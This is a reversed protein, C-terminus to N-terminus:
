PNELKDTYKAYFTDITGIVHNIRQFYLSSDTLEQTLFEVDEALSFKQEKVSEQSKCKKEKKKSESRARGEKKNKTLSTLSKTFTETKKIVRCLLLEEPQLLEKYIIDLDNRSDTGMQDKLEQLYHRVESIIDKDTLALINERLALQERYYNYHSANV